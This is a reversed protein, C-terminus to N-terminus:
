RGSVDAAAFLALYMVAYLIVAASTLLLFASDVSPVVLFVLAVSSMLVAQVMLLNRPVGCRNTTQLVPPLNGACGAAWLGKVPGVVWTSVQGAAATM